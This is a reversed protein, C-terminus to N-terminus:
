GSRHIARGDRYLAFARPHLDLSQGPKWARADPVQAKLRLGDALDLDVIAHAGYDTVRHVTAASGGETIALAEPRVALIAPGEGVPVRLAFGAHHFSGGTVAGDLLNMTGIFGAVFPTAPERYTVDPPAIQETRGERMVVIRDALALAEDQGHTVFLTTIRLRQQLDRVEERLRERLHQDLSAFPEDLLLIKPELVLSRALAVRQQQGGSLQNTMREGYGKLGVQELAAEVRARVEDKPIRRLKLGFALNKAVNMHTWLAHSQFVMGTPRKEPPMGTVEEGDLTIVGSTPTEFGGVMRLLTSKGSGSPGLLCVLEGDDVTLDFTDVATVAGFRKSVGRIDLVAM